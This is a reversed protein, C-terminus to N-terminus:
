SLTEMFRIFQEVNDKMDEESPRAKHREAVRVVAKSVLEERLRDIAALVEARKRDQTEQELQIRALRARENIAVVDDNIADETKAKIWAEKHPWEDKAAQAKALRDKAEARLKAGTEMHDRISSIQGDLFALAPRKFLFVMAALLTIVNVSRFYIFNAAMRREEARYEPRMRYQKVFEIENRLTETMPALEPREEYARFAESESVEVYHEHEKGFLKRYERSYDPSGLLALGLLLLGSYLVLLGMWFRKTTNM